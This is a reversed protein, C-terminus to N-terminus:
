RVLPSEGRPDGISQRTGTPGVPSSALSRGSGTAPAANRAQTSRDIREAEALDAAERATDGRRAHLKSRLRLAGVHAPDLKLAEDLDGGAGVLDGLQFYAFARNYRPAADSPKLRIAESYDSIAKPYEGQYRYAVGRNNFAIPDEPVLRICETFRAIAEAVKGARLQEDGQARAREALIKRDADPPPSSEATPM